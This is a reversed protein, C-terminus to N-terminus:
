LARWDVMGRRCFYAACDGYEEEFQSRTMMHQSVSLANPFQGIGIPYIPGYVRRNGVVYSWDCECKLLNM